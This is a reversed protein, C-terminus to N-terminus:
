QAEERKRKRYEYEIEEWNPVELWATKDDSEVYVARIAFDSLGQVHAMRRVFIVAEPLSLQGILMEQEDEIGRNFYTYIIKHYTTNSM